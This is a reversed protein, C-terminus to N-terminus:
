TTDLRDGERIRYSIVWTNGENGGLNLSNERNSRSDRPNM